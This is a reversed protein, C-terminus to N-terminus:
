HRFRKIGIRDRLLDSSSSAGSGPGCCPGLSHPGCGARDQYHVAEEVSMICPQVGTRLRVRRAEAGM